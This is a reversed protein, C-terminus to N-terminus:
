EEFSIVELKGHGSDCINQDLILSASISTQWYLMRKIIKRLKNPYNYIRALYYIRSMLNNLWQNKFKTLPAEQISNCKEIEISIKKRQKEELFLIDIKVPMYM